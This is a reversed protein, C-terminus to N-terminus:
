RILLMETWTYRQMDQYRRVEVCERILHYWRLIHKNKHHDRSEKAQAFAKFNDWYMDLPSSLDPVM